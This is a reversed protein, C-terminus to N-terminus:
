VFAGKAVQVHIRAEVGDATRRVDTLRAEVGAVTQKPLRLEMAGDAKVTYDLSTGEWGFRSNPSTTVKM